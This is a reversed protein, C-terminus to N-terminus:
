EPGLLGAAIANKGASFRDCVPTVPIMAGQSLRGFEPAAPGAREAEDYYRSPVYGTVRQVTKISRKAHCTRSKTPALDLICGYIDPHM